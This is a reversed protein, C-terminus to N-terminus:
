GHDSEKLARIARSANIAKDRWFHVRNQSAGGEETWPEDRQDVLNDAIVTLGAKFGEARAPTLTSLLLPTLILAEFEDHAEAPYDAPFQARQMASMIERALKRADRAREVDQEVPAPQAARYHYTKIAHRHETYHDGNEDECIVSRAPDIEVECPAKCCPCPLLAPQIITTEKPPTMTPEPAFTGGMRRALREPTDLANILDMAKRLLQETITPTSHRFEHYRENERLHHDAEVLFATIASRDPASATM